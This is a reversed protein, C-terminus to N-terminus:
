RIYAQYIDFTWVANFATVNGAMGSMFSALLATLGIGLLGTSYYRELLLPIVLNYHGLIQEPMLARGILGPLIIVAPSLMKFLAAILPTRRASLMDRAALARQVVLFDTCWYSVGGFITFALVVPLFGVGMPNSTPGKFVAY